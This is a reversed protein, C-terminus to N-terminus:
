FDHNIAWLTLQGDISWYPRHLVAVIYFDTVYQLSRSCQEILCIYPAHTDITTNYSFGNVKFEIEYTIAQVSQSTTISIIQALGEYPQNDFLNHIKIGTTPNSLSGPTSLQRLMLDKSNLCGSFFLFMDIIVLLIPSQHFTMNTTITTNYELFYSFSPFKYWKLDVPSFGCTCHFFDETSLQIGLLNNSNLTVAVKSALHM